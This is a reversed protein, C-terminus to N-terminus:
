WYAFLEILVLRGMYDDLRRAESNEISQIDRPRLPSGIIQAQVGAIMTGALMATAIWRATTTM